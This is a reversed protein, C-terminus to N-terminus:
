LEMWELGKDLVKEKLKDIDVSSIIKRKNNKGFYQYVYSFGQKCSKSPQKTVRFYGTTNKSKSNSIKSSLKQKFKHHESKPLAELNLICNNTKNNDKHHIHIEKPLNVGYFDEYILRHLYANHNGEKSSTIVFYGNNNINANGWKTKM